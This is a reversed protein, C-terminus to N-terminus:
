TKIKSITNRFFDFDQDIQVRINKDTGPNVKIRHSKNM